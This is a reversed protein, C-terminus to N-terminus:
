VGRQEPSWILKHLQLQLRVNNMHYKRMFAVIQDPAIQGFVPSLIVHCRHSLDYQQIIERARELDMDDAVVFKVTDESDVSRFNDLCMETEMGSGPLKYDLTFVPPHAMGRYQAVPVSGNTEIEVRLRREQSLRRLLIDIREQLLPEGGTITVNKIGTNLIRSCIEDETMERSEGDEAYAWATDCYHCRLNCGKMRVFVALEGACMGEGNISEFIEVVDYKAM